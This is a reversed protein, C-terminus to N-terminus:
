LVSARRLYCAQVVCVVTEILMCYRQLENCVILWGVHELCITARFTHQQMLEDQHMSLLVVVAATVANDIATPSASRTHLV